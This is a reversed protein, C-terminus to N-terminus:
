LHSNYIAYTFRRSVLSVKSKVDVFSGNDANVVIIGRDTAIWIESNIHISVSREVGKLAVPLRNEKKLKLTQTDYYLIGANSLVVSILDRYAFLDTVLEGSERQINTYGDVKRSIINFRIIRGKDTSILLHNGIRIMRNFYVSEKSGILQEAPIATEVENTTINIINLGEYSTLLYLLNEEEKYELAFCDIGILQRKPNINGKTFQTINSGEFKNLGDQTSLWLFDNKDKIIKRVNASSLNQDVSIFSLNAFYSTQPSVKEVFFILFGCTLLLQVLLCRWLLESVCYM